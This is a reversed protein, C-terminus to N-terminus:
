GLCVVNKEIGVGLQFSCSNYKRIREGKKEKKRFNGYKHIIIADRCYFHFDLYILKRM